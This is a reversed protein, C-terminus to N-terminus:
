IASYNAPNTVWERFKETVQGSGTKPVLVCITSKGNDIDAVKTIDYWQDSECRRAEGEVFADRKEIFAHVREEDAESWETIGFSDPAQPAHNTFTYRHIFDRWDSPLKIKIGYEGIYIYGGVSNSTSIEAASKEKEPESTGEPKEKEKAVNEPKAEECEPKDTSKMIGYVGFGVGALAVISAVIIGIKLGKNSSKKEITQEAKQDM